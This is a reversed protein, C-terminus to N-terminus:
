GSVTEEEGRTEEFHKLIELIGLYAARQGEKFATFHPDGAVFSTSNGNCSEKLDNLVVEGDASNFVRGYAAIIERDRNEIEKQEESVQDEFFDPTPERYDDM